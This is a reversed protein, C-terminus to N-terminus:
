LAKALTRFSAPDHVAYSQEAGRSNAIWKPEARHNTVDGPRHVCDADRLEPSVIVIGPRKCDLRTLVSRLSGAARPSPSVTDSPSVTALASSARHRALLAALDVSAVTNATVVVLEGDLLGLQRDLARLNALTGNETGGPLAIPLVSTEAGCCGEAIHRGLDRLSPTQVLVDQVGEATLWDLQRALLNRGLVDIRHAPPPTAGSHQLSAPDLILARIGALRHRRLDPSRLAEARTGFCPLLRELGADRIRTRSTQAEHVLAIPLRPFAREAIEALCGLDSARPGKLAGIDFVVAACRTRRAEELVTELQPFISRRFSPGVIDALLIRAERTM